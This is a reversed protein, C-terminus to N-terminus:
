LIFNIESYRSIAIRWDFYRIMIFCVHLTITNIHYVRCSINDINVHKYYTNASPIWQIVM